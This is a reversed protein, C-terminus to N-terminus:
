DKPIKLNNEKFLLDIKRELRNLQKVVEDNNDSVMADVFVSNVLSMGIVGGMVLLCCFYAKCLYGVLPTTTKSLTDPIEYWGEETFLRFVTYVSDIPTSFYQPAVDKFLSCSILAFILLVIIFGVFLPLCQRMASMFATVLQGFNPFLHIVRFFRLARLSRFVIMISMDHFNLPSIFNILSPISIMVLFFDMRNWWSQWYGKFRMIKIKFVMEITFILICLIDIYSFIPSNMGSEQLFITLANVFIVSLIFREDIIKKAWNIM